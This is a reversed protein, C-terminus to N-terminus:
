AVWIRATKDASTSLLLPYADHWRVSIVKNSHDLTKVINMEDAMDMIKIKADFGGSAIFKGDYSFSVSRAEKDHAKIDNVCKRM